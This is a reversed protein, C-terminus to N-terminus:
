STSAAAGKTRGFTLSWDGGAPLAAKRVVLAVDPLGPRLVLPGPAATMMGMEEGKSQGSVDVVDWGQPGNMLGLIVIKDVVVGPDYEVAPVPLNAASPLVGATCTLVGNLFQLKRYRYHGRQFAFSHGDDLYLEGDAAGGADLAIILTIPDAAMAATSRRAREKLPVMSGGKLFHKITDIPASATFEIVGTKSSSSSTSSSIATGDDGDYWITIRDGGGGGSSSSSSSSSTTTAIPLVVRVSTEGQRLVPAVAVAGGLMFVKDEAFVDSNEPFEYWLPRMVPTGSVNAHLFLTYIYPLLRYRRRIAERIHGTTEEGFLWPERRKSELHAHGRFFPYFAGLQYWRTMLEAGPNGFFGGVDAGAFPLGAVGISLVMPVSVELHEWEAGNDGTWIAGIRQSGAFFARSLVFPRDGDVGKETFGRRRLGDATAMHYYYGYVNHVDRHEATGDAHQADKHMSIEPGNFVSPENMDNWIYLNSTSGQYNSLSFQDAWWSRVAPSTQDLYSSSGPWCWGDFDNAKADKVFLGKETAESFIRWSTDRKIHPDVITVMKRGRSALDNQMAEPTPFYNKDWTFYKKGDTHEIDLWLVDYPIDHADFGADVNAVDEQDKYNWRCQHYGLAFSQPFATGGTLASFQASAALPSPGLLFFVDVVGAEAIWQTSVVSNDGGGGGGGGGGSAVEPKEVDVYMEAANLWFVGTTQGQRHGWLLPISGYLGFPSESLYEFVDLNYLRYPESLVTGNVDRTPQLSLSTARQPIGYVHDVGHFSLDWSVAEPGRPKSDHHTKFNESWWGEPDGEQKERRHELILHNGANWSLLPRGDISVHVAVPEFKLEVDANASECRVKVKTATTKVLQWPSQLADIGPLLVDQVEWRPPKATPELIHLRIINGYSTLFLAFLAAPDEKNM